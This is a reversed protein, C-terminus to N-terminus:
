QGGEGPRPEDPLTELGACMADYRGQTPFMTIMLALSFGVMAAFAVSGGAILFRVLGAVGPVEACAMSVITGQMVQRMTNGGAMRRAAAPSVLKAHVWLSAFGVLAGVVILVGGIAGAVSGLEPKTIFKGAVLGVVLYVVPSALLAAAVIQVQALTISKSAPIDPTPM